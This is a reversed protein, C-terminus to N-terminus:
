GTPVVVDAFAGAVAVVVTAFVVGPAANLPTWAPEAVVTAFRSADTGPTIQLKNPRILEQWNKQITM